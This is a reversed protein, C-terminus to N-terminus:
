RIFDWDLTYKSSGGVVVRHDKDLHHTIDEDPNDYSMVTFDRTPSYVYRKIVYDTRNDLIAPCYCNPTKELEELENGSLAFVVDRRSLEEGIEYLTAEASSEDFDDISIIEKLLAIDISPYSVYNIGDEEDVSSMGNIFLVIKKATKEYNAVTTLVANKENSNM